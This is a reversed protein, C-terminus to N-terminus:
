AASLTSRRRAVLRLVLEALLLALLALAVERSVDVTTESETGTSAEADEPQRPQRAIEQAPLTVHRYQTEDGIQLRYKGRQEPIVVQVHGDPCGEGPQCRESKIPMPGHRGSVSLDVTAPFRWATGATTERRGRRSVAHDVAASLLALFAPRLALDSTHLAAPLGLVWSIGRGHHAELIFPQGDSWEAVVKANKPEVSTLWVRGSPNIDDWTSGSAGLWSLSTSKLGKALPETWRAAGTLLPEFSRGLQARSSAEGLMVVAVGGRNLWRTLARRSGPSLGAVDDLILLGHPALEAFEDPIITSPRVVLPRDLAALAQEVVSTTGTAARSSTPDSVVSVSLSGGGVAVPAHDNSPSSDAGDISVDLAEPAKELDFTITQPGKLPLLPKEALRATTAGGSRVLARRDRAASSASCVVNIEVLRGRRTARVIGCDPAPTRLIALPAWAPPTGAPLKDGALDSLVVVRKDVQPLSNLASRALRVASSLDTDRDTATLKSLAELAAGRDTTSGLVIRAPTGAAIIAVSDGDRLSAMLERAGAIARDFRPLGDVKAKMSLSDDIVVALAVSAGGSRTLSLRQCRILPTAGLVALALIMLGRLVLLPRDELRRRETATPAATPM